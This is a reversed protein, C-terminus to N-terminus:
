SNETDKGAHILWLGRHCFNSILPECITNTRMEIVIFLMYLSLSYFRFISCLFYYVCHFITVNELLSIFSATM